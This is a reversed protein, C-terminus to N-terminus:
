TKMILCAWFDQFLRIKALGLLIRPSHIKNESRQSLVICSLSSIKATLNWLGLEKFCLNVSLLGRGLLSYYLFQKRYFNFKIVLRDIAKPDEINFGLDEFAEIVNANTAM